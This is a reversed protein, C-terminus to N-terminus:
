HMLVFSNVEVEIFYIYNNEFNNVQHLLKDIIRICNM